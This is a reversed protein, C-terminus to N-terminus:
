QTTDSQMDRGSNAFVQEVDIADFEYHTQCFECNMSVKGEKEIIEELEAIPVLLLSNLSKQRSCGCRYNITKPEFLRLPDQHFLRHLVTNSDLSLAEDQSLTNALQSLHEFGSEDNEEPMAQLLLGAAKDEGCFLWIRTALQESQAFYDEINEALSPKHMPVIGQYRRGGEPEITLAMQAGPMLTKIDESEPVIDNHRAVGRFEHEHNAQILLIKLDGGSQAQLTLRGEFKLTEALLNTALASKFLQKKVPAPYEHGAVLEKLSNSLAIWQGRVAHEEFLFRQIYDTERIDNM